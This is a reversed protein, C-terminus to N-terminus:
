LTAKADGQALAEELIQYTQQVTATMTALRDNVKARLAETTMGPSPTAMAAPRAAQQALTLKKILEHQQQRMVDAYRTLVEAAPQPTPGTSSM